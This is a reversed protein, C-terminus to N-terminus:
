QDFRSRKAQPRQGKSNFTRRRGVDQIDDTAPVFDVKDKNGKMEQEKRKAIKDHEKILRDTYAWEPFSTPVALGEPLSSAYQDAHEFGAFDMLKPLLSPNRLATSQDLRENFHVGKKKLDLFNKFKATAAEPPSGPPSPPIDFNPVPPM